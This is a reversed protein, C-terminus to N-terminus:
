FAMLSFLKKESARKGQEENEENERKSNQSMNELIESQKRLMNYIENIRYFFSFFLSVTPVIIHMADLVMGM